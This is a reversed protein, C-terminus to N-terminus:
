SYLKLKQGRKIVIFVEERNGKSCSFFFIPLLFTIM